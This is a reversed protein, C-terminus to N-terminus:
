NQASHLVFDLNPLYRLNIHAKEILDYLSINIVQEIQPIQNVQEIQNNDM